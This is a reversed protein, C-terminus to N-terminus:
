KRKFPSKTKLLNNKKDPFQIIIAKKTEASSIKVSDSRFISNEKGELVKIENTKVKSLKEVYDLIDSLQKLYIEKEKETLKIKALKTLHNLDKITFEM